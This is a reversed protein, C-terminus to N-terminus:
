RNMRMRIAPLRANQGALHRQIKVAARCRLACAGTIAVPHRRKVSHRAHVGARRFGDHDVREDGRGFIFDPHDHLRSHFTILVLEAGRM